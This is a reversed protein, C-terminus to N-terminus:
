KNDQRVPLVANKVPSNVSYELKDYGWGNVIAVHTIKDGYKNAKEEGELVIKRPYLFRTAWIKNYPQGTFETKVNPPFFVSKGPMLIVATEPTQRAIYRLYAYTYGLKMENRNDFSTHKYKHIIEMNGKLLGDHVWTYAAVNKYCTYVLLFAAFGVILNRVLIVAFTPRPDNGKGAKNKQTM